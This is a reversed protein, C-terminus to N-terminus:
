SAPKQTQESAFARSRIPSSCPTKAIWTFVAAGPFAGTKSARQPCIRARAGDHRTTVHRSASRSSKLASATSFFM